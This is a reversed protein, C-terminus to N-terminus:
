QVTDPPLFEGEGDQEMIRALEKQLNAELPSGPFSEILANARQAAREGISQNGAKLWDEM